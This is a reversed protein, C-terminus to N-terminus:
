PEMKMMKKEWITLRILVTAPPVTGSTLMQSTTSMARPPTPPERIPLAMELRMESLPTSLTKMHISPAMARTLTQFMMRKAM